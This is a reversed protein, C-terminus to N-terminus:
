PTAVGAPTVAADMDIRASSDLVQRLVRVARSCDEETVYPHTPLTMIRSAIIRGGTADREDGRLHSTLEPIDAISTPYSATAGIGARNLAAVATDRADRSRLLVPLRLYVPEAGAGPTITQIGQADRLSVLMRQANRRRQETYLGLQPLMTLALASLCAPHKTLPYNTTYVTKGLGLGPINKPIWYLQPRLLAVYAALKILARTVDGTSPPPLRNMQTAIAGAMRDSNTVIAGGDIASLNKGKDFSYLGADGSTGCLRGAVRAGFAQAADDIVLIGLDRSIETLRPLDNPLGYLSTAVVAVVRRLDARRLAEYDFDLTTPDVDALRVKFGAKVASAAVSYCTYSPILVEDRTGGAIQPM